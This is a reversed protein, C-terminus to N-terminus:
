LMNKKYFNYLRKQLNQKARFLLSEVSSVTTGMIEAIEQYNFDDYKSLVFATRQKGPLGDIARKVAAAQESKTLDGDPSYDSSAVPENQIVPKGSDTYDFFSVIKRRTASRLFNISKNVAIRYIWTSLGSENRFKKVSQYVEIFVEQAIDEADADSHVFGRGTRIVKEEYKEVLFRFAEPVGSRMDDILDSENSYNGTKEM